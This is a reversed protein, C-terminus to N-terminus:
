STITDSNVSSSLNNNPVSSDLVQSPTSSTETANQLQGDIVLKHPNYNPQVYVQATASQTFSRRVILSAVAPQTKTGINSIHSIGTQTKTYNQSIRAIATQTKSLPQVIRAVATQFANLINVFSIHYYDTSLTSTVIISAKASQTKTLKTAIRAIAPQTNTVTMQIRSKAPQTKSVGAIIHATGTQTKTYNNSIHAIATQTKSSSFPITNFNNWKFTGPSTENQFCTGGINVTVATVAIPNSASTLNTYTIGDSSYDWYTTGGSERIRWYAMTTANYAISALNTQVGALIKSAYLTGAEYFMIVSNADSSGNWIGLTADAHTGSSPVSLVQLYAHSSTMDYTAKSTLDGDTSATSSAPYNVQAGTSAYTFTASGATFSSWKASRLSTQDFPDQFTELLAM